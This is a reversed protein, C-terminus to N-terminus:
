IVIQFGLREKIMVLVSNAANRQWDLSIPSSAITRLSGYVMVADPWGLNFNKHPMRGIEPSMCQVRLIRTVTARFTSICREQM